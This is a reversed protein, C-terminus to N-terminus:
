GDREANPANDKNDATPQQYQPIPNIDKRNRDVIWNINPMGM